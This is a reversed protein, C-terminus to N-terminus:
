YGTVQYNIITLQMHPISLHPCTETNWNQCRKLTLTETITLSTM